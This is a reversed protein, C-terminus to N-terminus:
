VLIISIHTQKNKNKKFLLPSYRDHKVPPSLREQMATNQLFQPSCTCLNPTQPYPYIWPYGRFIQPYPYPHSIEYGRCAQMQHGTIDSINMGFVILIENVKEFNYKWYHWPHNKAYKTWKLASKMNQNVWTALASAYIPHPPFKLLRRIALQIM